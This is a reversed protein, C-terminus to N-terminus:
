FVLIGTLPNFRLVAINMSVIFLTISNLVGFDGHPSQFTLWSEDPVENQFNANLVGFDGHPSQFRSRTM